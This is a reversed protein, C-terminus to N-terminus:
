QLTLFYFCFFYLKMRQHFSLYKRLSSNLHPYREKHTTLFLCGCPEGDLEAIFLQDKKQTTLYEALATTVQYLETNSFLKNTLKAQFGEQLLQPLLNGVTEESCDKMSKITISM